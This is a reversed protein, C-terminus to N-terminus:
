HHNDSERVIYSIGFVGAEGQHEFDTSSHHTIHIIIHLTYLIHKAHFFHTVNVCNRQIIKM